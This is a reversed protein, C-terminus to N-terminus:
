TNDLWLTPCACCCHKILHFHYIYSWAQIPRSPLNCSSTTWIGHQRSNFHQSSDLMWWYGWATHRIFLQSLFLLSCGSKSIARCMICAGGLLPCSCCQLGKSSCNQLVCTFLIKWLPCFKQCYVLNYLKKSLFFPWIHSQESVWPNYGISQSSPWSRSLAQSSFQHSLYRPFYTSLDSWTPLPHSSLQKRSHSPRKM